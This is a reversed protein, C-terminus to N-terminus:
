PFSRSTGSTGAHSYHLDLDKWIGDNVLYCRALDNLTWRGNHPLEDVIGDVRACSVDTNHKLRAAVAPKLHAVIPTAHRAILGYKRKLSM